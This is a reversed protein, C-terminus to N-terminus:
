AVQAFVSRTCSSTPLGCGSCIGGTQRLCVGAPTQTCTFTLEAELITILQPSASESRAAPEALSSCRLHPLSVLACCLLFTTLKTLSLCDVPDSSIILHITTHLPYPLLPLISFLSTCTCTCTCQNWELRTERSPIYQLPSLSLSGLSRRDLVHARGTGYFTAGAALSLVSCFCPL